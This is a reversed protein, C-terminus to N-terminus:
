SLVFFHQRSQMKRDDEWSLCCLLVGCPNATPSPPFMIGADRFVSQLPRLLTDITALREYGHCGGQQVDAVLDVPEVERDCARLLNQFRGHELDSFGIQVGFPDRIGVGAVVKAEAGDIAPKPAPGAAMRGRLAHAVMAVDAEAEGDVVPEAELFHELRQPADAVPAGAEEDVGGKWLVLAAELGRLLAHPAERGDRRVALAAVAELAAPLLRVVLLLAQRDHGVPGAHFEVLLLLLPDGPSEVGLHSPLDELEDRVVIAPEHPEVRLRRARLVHDQRDHEDGGDDNPRGGGDLFAAAGLAVVIQGGEEAVNDLVGVQDALFQRLLEVLEGGLGVLLKDHVDGRVKVLVSPGGGCRHAKAPRARRPGGPAM